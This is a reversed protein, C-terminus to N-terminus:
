EALLAAVRESTLGTHANLAPPAGFQIQVGLDEAHAQAADLDELTPNASDLNQRAVSALDVRSRLLEVVTSVDDRIQDLGKALEQTVHENAQPFEGNSLKDLSELARASFSVADNLSSLLEEVRDSSRLQSSSTEGAASTGQAPVRLGSSISRFNSRLSSNSNPSPSRNTKVSDVM